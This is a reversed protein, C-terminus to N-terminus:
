HCRISPCIFLYYIFLYIDFIATPYRWRRQRRRGNGEKPGRLSTGLTALRSSSKWWRCEGAQLILSWRFRARDSYSFLFPSSSFRLLLQTDPYFQLLSATAWWWQRWQWQGGDREGLKKWLFDHLYNRKQLSLNSFSSKSVLHASAKHYLIPTRQLCM